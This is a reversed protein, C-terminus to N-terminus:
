ANSYFREKGENHLSALVMPSMMGNMQALKTPRRVKLQSDERLKFRVWVFKRVSESCTNAFSFTCCEPITILVAWDAGCEGVTQNTGM